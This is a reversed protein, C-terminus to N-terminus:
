IGSGAGLGSVAVPSSSQAPALGDGLQGYFNDGWALVSGDSKLAVSHEFGGAVGVVGSLGPVTVPALRNTMSGDGLQGRNNWGWTWLTGDSKVAMSHEFGGAVAVVGSLGSVMVPSFQNLGTGDGLEGAGNDGWAWVTGDSKLALSHRGGGAIAVVGSLGSVVVPSASDAATGDGLQGFANYGWAVVTVDSKLALSHGAGAAVSVVGSTLGVVAVPFLRNTTTGDGLRGNENDGWAMVSGDSKLALGFEYGGAMAVVGSGLGTVPVPSTRDTTTGDGLAGLYNGGWAVLSGPTTNVAAHACGPSLNVVLALPLSSLLLRFGRHGGFHGVQAFRIGM